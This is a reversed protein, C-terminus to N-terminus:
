TTEPVILGYCLMLLNSSEFWDVETSHVSIRLIISPSKRLDVVLEKSKEGNVPVPDEGVVTYIAQGTAIQFRSCVVWM